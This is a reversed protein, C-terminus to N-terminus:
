ADQVLAILYEEESLWQDETIWPGLTQSLWYHKACSECWAGLNVVDM